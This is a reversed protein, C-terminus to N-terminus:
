EALPWLDNIIVPCFVDMCRYMVGGQNGGGISVYGPVARLGEGGEAGFIDINRAMSVGATDKLTFGGILAGMLWNTARLVDIDIFDQPESVMNKMIRFQFEGVASVSVLGSSQIPKIEASFLCLHIGESGPANKPEHMLVTDFYGSESATSFLDVIIDTFDAM